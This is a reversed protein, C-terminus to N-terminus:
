QGSSRHLLPIALEAYKDLRLATLISTEYSENHDHPEWHMLALMASMLTSEPWLRWALSMRIVIWPVSDSAGKHTETM